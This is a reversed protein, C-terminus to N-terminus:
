RSCCSRELRSGGPMHSSGCAVQSVLWGGISMRRVAIPRKSVTPLGACVRWLMMSWSMVSATCGATRAPLASAPRQNVRACADDAAIADAVRLASTSAHPWSPNEFDHSARHDRWVRLLLGHSHKRDAQEGERQCPGDKDGLFGFVVCRGVRARQKARHLLNAGLKQAAVLHVHRHDANRKALCP